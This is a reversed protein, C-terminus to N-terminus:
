NKSSACINGDSIRRVLPGTEVDMDMGMKSAEMGLHVAGILLTQSSLIGPIETPNTTERM